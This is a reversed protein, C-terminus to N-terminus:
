RVLRAPIATGFPLAPRRLKKVSNKLPMFRDPAICRKTYSAPNRPTSTASSFYTARPYISTAKTVGTASPLGHQESVLTVPPGGQHPDAAGTEEPRCPDNVDTGTQGSGSRQPRSNKLRPRSPGILSM